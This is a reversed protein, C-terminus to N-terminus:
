NWRMDEAAIVQLGGEESLDQLRYHDESAEDKLCYFSTCGTGEIGIFRLSSLAEMIQQGLTAFNIRSLDSANTVMDEDSFQIKQWHIVLHTIPPLLGLQEVLMRITDDIGEVFGRLSITLYLHSLGSADRLAVPLISVPFSHLRIVFRLRTPSTDRLLESVFAHNDEDVHNELDLLRVSSTLGLAYIQGMDGSLRDMWIWRFHEAQFKTNPGRIDSLGSPHGIAVQRNTTLRLSRIHPFSLVLPKIDLIENMTLELTHLAPFRDTSSRLLAGDYRLEQLRLNSKGLLSGIDHRAHRIYRSRPNRSNFVIRATILDAEIQQLFQCTQTTAEEFVLHELNRWALFLDFFCPNMILWRESDDIYLHNIGLSPRHSLVDYLVNGMKLISEETKPVRIHLRRLYSLRFSPDALMFRGYLAINHEHLPIDLSLLQKIGEKHLDRCTLMMSLTEPKSLFTLVVLLVDFCLGIKAGEIETEKTDATSNEMDLPPVKPLNRCVHPNFVFM